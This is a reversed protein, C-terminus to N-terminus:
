LTAKCHRQGVREAAESANQWTGNVQILEAQVPPEWCEQAGKGEKPVKRVTEQSTSILLLNTHSWRCIIYLFRLSGISVSRDVKICTFVLAIGSSQDLPWALSHALFATTIRLWFLSVMLWSALLFLLFFATNFCMQDSVRAYEDVVVHNRLTISDNGQEYTLSFQLLAKKGMNMSMYAWMKCFFGCGVFTQCYPLLAPPGSPLVPPSASRAASVVCDSPPWLWSQHRASSFFLSGSKSFHSCHSICTHAQIQWPPSGWPSGRPNLCQVVASAKSPVHLFQVNGMSSHLRLQQVSHTQLCLLSQFYRINLELLDDWVHHFHFLFLFTYFGRCSCSFFFLPIEGAGYGWTFVDCTILLVM